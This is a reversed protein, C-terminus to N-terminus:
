PAVAGAVFPMGSATEGHFAWLTERFKSYNNPDAVSNGPQIWEDEGLGYWEKFDDTAFHSGTITHLHYTGSSPAYGAFRKIRLPEPSINRLRTEYYKPNAPRTRSQAFEVALFENGRTLAEPELTEIAPKPERRVYHVGRPLPRFVNEGDLVRGTPYAVVFARVGALAIRQGYRLIAIDGEVRDVAVWQQPSNFPLGIHLRYARSQGLITQLREISSRPARRAQLIAIASVAFLLNLCAYFLM